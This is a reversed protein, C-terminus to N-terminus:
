KNFKITNGNSTAEISGDIDTRYVKIGKLKNITEQSPHGYPNEKGVSIVAYTPSVAKLFEESTSSNSGHHGIKLVDSKLSYGKNLMEKESDIEADGTFLFSNNKYTLKIVSSYNNLDEYTSSNPAFMNIIIEKDLDINLNAAASIITLSKQKAANLVDEYTKTNTQVKPMYFKGVDFNEIVEDMGGIHDEHAHTGILVDIKKIGKEKLYSVVNDGDENNGADILISKKNPSKILISDAQGVDIYSVTLDKNETTLEITILKKVSDWNVNAGISESIFRLPVLTRGNVIRAAVDLEKTIGNVTPHKDDIKIVILTSEKKGTVTKTSPDWTVEAGLAEFIGRLPVLTRGQYIIPSVDFLLNTGNVSVKIPDEKVPTAKPAPTTKAPTPKNQIEVPIDGANKVTYGKYPGSHYHYTGSSKDYHGGYKDTRGPHSYSIPVFM